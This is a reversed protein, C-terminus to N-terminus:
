VSVVHSELVLSQYVQKMDYAIKGWQYQEAVLKRGMLGMLRREDDSKQMIAILKDKIDEPDISIEQAANILFGSPLNCFQTMVVPLSYSWAELVAVPLGESLSPLIFIDSNNFLNIKKQGFIPGTHIIEGDSPLYSCGEDETPQVDLWDLGCHLANHRLESRLGGDDWGAIILQWDDYMSLECEKLRKWATILEVLGKKKHIRGLFLVRRKRNQPIIKVNQEPLEVGNPIIAVPNNLGFSRISQAESECLAHLCSANKLSRDIFLKRALIKKWYSNNLAWQDLMGHPSIIVPKKTVKQWKAAVRLSDEWIGHCHVLDLPNDQLLSWCDLSTKLPGFNKYTFIEIGKWQIKDVEVFNDEPAFVKIECGSQILHKCLPLVSASIGGALRSIGAMVGVRM